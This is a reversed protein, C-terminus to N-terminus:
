SFWTVGIFYVKSEEAAAPQILCSEGELWLKVGGDM